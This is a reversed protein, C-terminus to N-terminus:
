HLVAAQEFELVTDTTHGCESCQYVEAGPIPERRLLQGLSLGGSASRHVEWVQGWLQKYVISTEGCESCRLRCSSMVISGTNKNAQTALIGM